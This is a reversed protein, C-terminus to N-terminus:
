RADKFTLRQAFTLLNDTDTIRVFPIGAREAMQLDSFSDGALISRRLDIDPYDARVEDLMGTSM